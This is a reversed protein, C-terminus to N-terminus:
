RKMLEGARAPRWRGSLGEEQSRAEREGAVVLDREGGPHELGVKGIGFLGAKADSVESEAVRVAEIERRGEV